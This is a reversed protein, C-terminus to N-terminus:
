GMKKLTTPNYYLFINHKGGHNNKGESKRESTSFRLRLSTPELGVIPAYERKKKKKQIHFYM